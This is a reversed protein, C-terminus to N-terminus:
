QTWVPVGYLLLGLLLASSLSIFVYQYGHSTKPFSLMLRQIQLLLLLLLLLLLVYLCILKHMKVLDWCLLSSTAIELLFRRNGRNMETGSM